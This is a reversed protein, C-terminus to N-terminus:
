KESTSNKLRYESWEILDSKRYRVARSSVRVFNPGGGRLRWAQLARPTFNLFEAAQTETLLALPDQRIDHINM